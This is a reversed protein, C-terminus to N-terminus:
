EDILVCGGEPRVSIVHCMGAGLVEEMRGRFAPLLADPVFAQITGAFGGGHVRVAGAGGLAEEAAALALPVAQEAPDGGAWINQLNLSSSAGSARVLALFRGFEGASLADAEEGARRNEQFFHLARLVARDGVARRLAPLAARFAGEDVERLVTKGFYAAVAGMEAPIAAYDGTLDAHCSGTDVICLTHGSAAFDYGVRRVAPAAPDAFDIAVAGGVASAMQDMLGCPKGFFRNEAGQGIRALQVASLGDGCFLRNFIVGVLVEYAASSSLGSGAPVGSRIYADFGGPTFGLAAIGAAVGRVLAQSTDREEARPELRSLDVELAPYGESVIHVTGTGNPRAAALMDMNVSACLVRGHQHDTHNGGLETRGPGSFLAAPAEPGLHFAGRFGELVELARTRAGALAQEEGNCCYIRDLRADYHGARLRADLEQCPLM